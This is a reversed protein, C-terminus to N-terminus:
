IVLGGSCVKLKCSFFCLISGVSANRFSFFFIQPAVVNDVTKPMRQFSSEGFFFGVSFLFLESVDANYFKNEFFIPGQLTEDKSSRENEVSVFLATIFMRVRIVSMSVKVERM